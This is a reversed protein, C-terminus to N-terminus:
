ENSKTLTANIHVDAGAQIFVWQVWNQYGTMFMRVAHKGPKLKVTMPTLGIEADDINIDAGVPDSALYIAVLTEPPSTSTDRTPPPPTPPTAPAATETTQKSTDSEGATELEADVSIKGGNVKIKREWVKYGHKNIAITHNGATVDITSPTSGVFSGDLQIEAGAPTSAIELEAINAPQTGPANSISQVM